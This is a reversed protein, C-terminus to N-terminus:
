LNLLVIKNSEMKFKKEKSYATSKQDKDRYVLVYNGPQLLLKGKLSSEDLNCLWERKGNLNDIFLQGIM